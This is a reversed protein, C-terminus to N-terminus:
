LVKLYKILSQVQQILLSHNDNLILFDVKDLKKIDPLQSAIKKEVLESSIQDRNIVRSVRIEKPTYVLISYDVTDQFNAEFLIASEMALIPESSHVAYWNFIDEKVRPHVINNIKQTNSPNAFLYDAIVQKNLQGHIYADAGLLNILDAKIGTYNLMLRKAEDDAIYVPIGANKLIRSVVSKGSGIGGTIGLKIM